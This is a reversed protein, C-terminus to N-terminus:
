GTFFGPNITYLILGSLFLIAIAILSQMIRNKAEDIKGTDGGATSIQIGSFVMLLVAIIGVISVAWRYL